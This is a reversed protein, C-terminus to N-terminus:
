DQYFFLIFKISERYFILIINVYLILLNLVSINQHTNSIKYHQDKFFRSKKNNFWISDHIIDLVLKNLNLRKLNSILLECSIKWFNMFFTSKPENFLINKSVFKPPFM